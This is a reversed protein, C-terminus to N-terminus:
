CTEKKLIDFILIDSIKVINNHFMLSFYVAIRCFIKWIELAYQFQTDSGTKATVNIKGLTFM